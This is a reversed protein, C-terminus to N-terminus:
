RGLMRLYSEIAPGASPNAMWEPQNQYIAMSEMIVAKLQPDNPPPIQGILLTEVFAKHLDPESKKNKLRAEMAIEAAPLEGRAERYLVVAYWPIDKERRFHPMAQDIVSAGEEFQKNRLYEFAIHRYSRDLMPAYEVVPTWLTIANEWRRVQKHSLLAFATLLVIMLGMRAREPVLALLSGVGMVFGLAPLYLYTDAALRPLFVINSYPFFAAAMLGLGFATVSLAPQKRMLLVVIALLVLGAITLGPIADIITEDGVYYYSPHLNVPFVLSVTSIEVARGFRFLLEVVGTMTRAKREAVEAHTSSAWVVFPISATALLTLGVLWLRNVKKLVDRGHIFILVFGLLFPLFAGDPRSGLALAYLAVLGLVQALKADRTVRSQLCLAALIALNSLLNKTNTLWAVSEVLVPHLAWVGAIWLPLVDKNPLDFHTWIWKCFRFALYTNCIHLLLHFGHLIQYYGDEGFVHRLVAYIATPIPIPYGIQPNVLRDYWSVGWWDLIEPRHVVFNTDDWTPLIGYSLVPWYVLGIFLVGVIAVIPTVRM